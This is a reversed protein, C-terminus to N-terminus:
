SVRGAHQRGVEDGFRLDFFHPPVGSVERLAEAHDAQQIHLKGDLVAHHVDELHVWAGRSRHGKDGLRGTHPEGAQSRGYHHALGEVVETEVIIHQLGVYGHFLGNKGEALKRADVKNQPGLHARGPFNHTNGVREPHRKGLCLDGGIPRKRQLARNKDRDVIMVLSRDNRNGATEM